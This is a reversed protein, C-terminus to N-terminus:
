ELFQLTKFLSQHLFSRPSKTNKPLLIQFSQWEKEFGLDLRFNVKKLAKVEGAGVDKRKEDKGLLYQQSHDQEAFKVRKEQRRQEEEEEETEQQLGVSSGGNNALLDKVLKEKKILRKWLMKTKRPDM